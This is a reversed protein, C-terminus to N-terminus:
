TGRETPQRCPCRVPLGRSGCEYAHQLRIVHQWLESNEDFRCEPPNEWDTIIPDRDFWVTKPAYQYNGGIYAALSGPGYNIFQRPFGDMYFRAGDNRAHAERLRFDINDRKYTVFEEDSIEQPKEIKGGGVAIYTLFRDHVDCEWFADYRKQSEASLFSAKKM